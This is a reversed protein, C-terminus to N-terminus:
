LSRELSSGQALEIVVGEDAALEVRGAVHNDPRDPVTSILVRGAPPDDTASWVLPGSGLNLVILLRRGDHEREYALVDGEVGRPRYHGIQLAPESHRLEILQRYLSLLSDADDQQSAVNSIAVEGAIPLWPEVDPPCFGANPSADWQM